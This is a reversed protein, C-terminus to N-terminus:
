AGPVTRDLRIHTSWWTTRFVEGQGVSRILNQLMSLIAENFGKWSFGLPVFGQILFFLVVCMVGGSKSM